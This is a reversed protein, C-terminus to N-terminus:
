LFIENKERKFLIEEIGIKRIKREFYYSANKLANERTSSSRGVTEIIKNFLIKNNSKISITTTVKAIKWDRAVSYRINNLIDIKTKTKDKSIKYKKKM